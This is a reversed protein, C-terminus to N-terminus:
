ADPPAAAAALAAKRKAAYASDSQKKLAALGERIKTCSSPAHMGGCPCSLETIPPPPAPPEVYTGSRSALAKAVAAEVAADQWVTLQQGVAADPLAGAPTVGSAQAFPGVPACQALFAAEMALASATGSAARRADDVSRQGMDTPLGLGVCEGFFFHRVYSLQCRVDYPFQQQSYAVFRMWRAAAGGFGHATLLSTVALSHKLWKLGTVDALAQTLTTNMSGHKHVSYYRKISMINVPTYQTCGEGPVKCAASIMSRLTDLADGDVLWEGVYIVWACEASVSQSQESASKISLMVGECSRAGELANSVGLSVLLTKFAQVAESEHSESEEFSSIWILFALAAGGSSVGADQLTAKWFESFLDKNADVRMLPTSEFSLEDKAIHKLLASRVKRDIKTESPRDFWAQWVAMEADSIGMLKGFFLSASAPAAVIISRIM